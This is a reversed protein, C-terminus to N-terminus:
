LAGGDFTTILTHKTAIHLTSPARAARLLHRPAVNDAACVQSSRDIQARLERRRDFREEKAEDRVRRGSRAAAESTGCSRERLLKARAANKRLGGEDVM